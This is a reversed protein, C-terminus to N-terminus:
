GVLEDAKGIRSRHPVSATATPVKGSHRSFLPVAHAADAFLSSLQVEM